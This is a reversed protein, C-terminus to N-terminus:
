KVSQATSRDAVYVSNQEMCNLTYDVLVQFLAFFAKEVQERSSSLPVEECAADAIAYMFRQNDATLTENGVGVTIELRM